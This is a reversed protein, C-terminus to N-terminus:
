IIKLKSALDSASFEKKLKVYAIKKNDKIMTRVKEVKVNFLKEVEKKIDEKRVRRDCIFSIVNESEIMKIIKETAKVKELVM